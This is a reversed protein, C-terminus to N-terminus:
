VWCAFFLDAESRPGEPSRLAGKRRVERIQAVERLEHGDDMLDAKCCALIVPIDPKLAQVRPHPVRTPNPRTPPSSSPRVCNDHHM